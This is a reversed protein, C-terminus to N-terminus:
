RAAFCYLLGGGGSSALAQTSCGRSPHANNWSRSPALDNLGARDHHGVQASGEAGSKTWNGCTTDAPGALAYGFSDSGTLIDHWNPKDGRANVMGGKENLATQKNIRNDVHLDDIDRAILEGKANYWPGRGIRDRANVQKESGTATASLYARWTRNGAGAAKALNQCHADAGALGGYDAGKGSGTSSIFFSMSRQPMRKAQAKGDSVAAPKAVAEQRPAGQAQVLPSWAGAIALSIVALVAWEKRIKTMRKGEETKPDVRIGATQLL